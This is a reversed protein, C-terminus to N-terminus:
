GSLTGQRLQCLGKGPFLSSTKALSLFGPDAIIAVEPDRLEIDGSAEAVAGYTGQGTVIQVRKRKVM